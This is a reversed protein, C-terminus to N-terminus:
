AGEAMSPISVAIYALDRPGLLVDGRHLVNSSLVTADIDLRSRHRSRIAPHDLEVGGTDVLLHRRVSQLNQREFSCTERPSIGGGGGGGGM